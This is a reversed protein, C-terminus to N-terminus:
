YNRRYDKHYQEAGIKYAEVAKEIDKFYGLSILKGEVKIRAQWFSKKKAWYVGKHGSTNNSQVGRNMNQQSRNVARINELRNDSPDGNIHDIEDKCYGYRMAFIVRHVLYPQGFLTVIKYGDKRQTGAETGVVIKKAIKKKWFIRGAEADWFLCENFRDIQEQNIPNIKM